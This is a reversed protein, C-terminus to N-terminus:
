LSVLRRWARTIGVGVVFLFVFCLCRISDNNLYLFPFHGFFPKCLKSVFSCSLAQFCFSLVFIHFPEHCSLSSQTYHMLNTIPLLKNIEYWITICFQTEHGFPTHHLKQINHKANHGM